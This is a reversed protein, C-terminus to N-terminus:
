SGHHLLPGDSGTGRQAGFCWKGPRGDRRDGPHPGHPWSVLTDVEAPLECDPDTQWPHNAWRNEDLLWMPTRSVQRPIHLDHAARPIELFLQKLGWRFFCAWRVPWSRDGWQLQMFHGAAQFDPRRLESLVRLVSTIRTWLTVRGVPPSRDNHLAV